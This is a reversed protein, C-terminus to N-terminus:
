WHHWKVLVPEIKHHSLYLDSDNQIQLVNMAFQQLKSPSGIWSIRFFLFTAVDNQFVYSKLLLSTPSILILWNISMQIAKIMVAINCKNIKNIIKKNLTDAVFYGVKLENKRKLAQLLQINNIYRCLFLWSM